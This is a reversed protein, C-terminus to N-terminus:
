EYTFTFNITYFATGAVVDSIKYGSAVIPRASMAQTYDTAKSVPTTGLSIVNNDQSPDICNFQHGGDVNGMWIELGVNKETGEATGGFAKDNSSACSYRATSIAIKSVGLCNSFQLNFPTVHSKSNLESIYVDGINITSTEAGSSDTAVVTCTGATIDATFTGTATYPSSAYSHNIFILLFSLVSIINKMNNM